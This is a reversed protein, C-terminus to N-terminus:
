GTYCYIALGILVPIILLPEFMCVLIALAAGGLEAFTENM